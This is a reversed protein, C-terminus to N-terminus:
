VRGMDTLRIREHRDENRLASLSSNRQATACRPKSSPIRSLLQPSAGKQAKPVSMNLPSVLVAIIEGCWKETKLGFGQENHM